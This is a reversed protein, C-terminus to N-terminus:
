RLAVFLQLSVRGLFALLDEQAKDRIIDRGKIKLRIDIDKGLDVAMQAADDGTSGDRYAEEIEQYIQQALPLIKIRSLAQQALMRRQIRM